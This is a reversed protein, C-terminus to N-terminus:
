TALQRKSGLSARAADRGSHAVGSLLAQLCPGAVERAAEGDVTALALAIRDGIAADTELAWRVFRFALEAHRQEDHAIRSYAASIVPDSASAAAEIAELAAQTEGFCGEAIVLDVVEGLTTVELSNSIDLPGPGVAHGAYASALAFCLKAHATEDALAQTCAQVLEVPAGLALLQLSFRAFAAISAHEMQGMSTWHDALVARERPVLHDLRPHRIEDVTWNTNRVVSALRPKAAILFPRGCLSGAGCARHGDSQLLCFQNTGAQACDDTSFCEDAVTQCTYPAPACGQPTSACHYGAECDADSHCTDFTCRGEAAGDCVCSGAGCDADTACGSECYRLSTPLANPGCFGFQFQDCIRPDSQCEVANPARPRPNPSPRADDSRDCRGDTTRYVIGEACTM